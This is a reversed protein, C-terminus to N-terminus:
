QQPQADAGHPEAHRHENEDSKGSGARSAIDAWIVVIRSGAQGSPSCAGM